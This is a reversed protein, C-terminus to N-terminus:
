VRVLHGLQRCFVGMQANKGAQESEEAGVFPGKGDRDQERGGRLGDRDGEDADGLADDVVPDPRAVLLQHPDEDCDDGGEPEDLRQEHDAPAEDRPPLRQADLEVHPVREVSV